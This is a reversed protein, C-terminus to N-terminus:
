PQNQNLPEFISVGERLIDLIDFNSQIYRGFSGNNSYTPRFASVGELSMAVPFYLAAEILEKSIIRYAKGSRLVAVDGSKALSLNIQKSM